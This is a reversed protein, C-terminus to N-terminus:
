RKRMSFRSSDNLKPQLDLNEQLLKQRQAFNLDSRSLQKRLEHLRHEVWTRELSGLCDAATSDLNQSPAPKVSLEAALKGDEDDAPGNMLSHPGDWNGTSHLKLVREILQGAVSRTLWASELRELALDVIRVDALMLQLLMVEAPQNPASEFEVEEGAVDPEEDQSSVPAGRRRSAQLKQLEQRIADEPVDLRQATQQAYTSLLIPSPIRILWDTMQRVIQLKGRESRPDHQHSLRELLYVFFSEGTTILNKLKEGGNAKIYSDPDHDGPIVAVRMAMGAEWLPEASRVIAKQGAEDADYMLVVEEAYRKLIRAHQDTLATGQPAVVNTIGAEHCAITDIQGECLVVFKEEIISRKAKDLAFLVRGKQFIPTEPSNVYKPQDKEDTLIRGSFGVVRGQEDCISFMLRGRFRDYVRGEESRIALGALELDEPKYKKGAAWQLLGDWSETSYGIRWKRAVERSIQRKELYRQAIGAKGINEQFFAAVDEHIKLLLDKEGRHLVAGADEMEVKIGAKEALRRVADIFELNEYQMVFKFVDGGAGCGFCKWMQKSPNVNFSPTKEKHFPCLARFNAGARKLPFYAGIVEVVDNAHRVQEIIQDSIRGAM